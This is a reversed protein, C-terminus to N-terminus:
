FASLISRVIWILVHGVYIVVGVTVVWLFVIVGKEASDDSEKLRAIDSHRRELIAKCWWLGGVLLVARIFVTPSLFM